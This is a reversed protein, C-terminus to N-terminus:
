TWKKQSLKMSTKYRTIKPIKKRREKRGEGESGCNWGLQGQDITGYGDHVACAVLHDRNAVALPEEFHCFVRCFGEPHVVTTM